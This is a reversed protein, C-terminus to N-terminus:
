KAAIWKAIRKEFCDLCVVSFEARKTSLMEKCDECMAPAPIKKPM